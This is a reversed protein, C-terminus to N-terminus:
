GNGIIWSRGDDPENFIDFPPYFVVARASPPNPGLEPKLIGFLYKQVGDRLLLNLEAWTIFPNREKYKSMAMDQRLELITQKIPGQGVMIAQYRATKLLLTERQYFVIYVAELGAYCDWELEVSYLRPWEGNNCRAWKM